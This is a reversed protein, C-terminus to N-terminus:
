ASGSDAHRSRVTRLSLVVLDNRRLLDAVDAPGQGPPMRLQFVTTAPAETARRAGLVARLAPGLRGAVSVQYSSRRTM